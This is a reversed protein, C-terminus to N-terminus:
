KARRQKSKGRKQIKAVKQAAQRHKPSNAPSTTEAPAIPAEPAAVEVPAATDTAPTSPPARESSRMGTLRMMQEVVMSQADWGFRVAQMPFSFWPNLM